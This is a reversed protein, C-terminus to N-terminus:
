VKALRVRVGGNTTVIKMARFLSALLFGLGPGTAVMGMTRLLLTLIHPLGEEDSVAYGGTFVILRWSCAGLIRRTPSTVRGKLGIGALIHPTCVLRVTGGESLTSSSIRVKPVM